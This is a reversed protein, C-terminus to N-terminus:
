KAEYNNETIMRDDTMMQNTDLSQQTDVANTKLYTTTFCLSRHKAADNMNTRCEENIRHETASSDDVIHGEKDNALTSLENSHIMRCSGDYRSALEVYEDRDGLRRPILVDLRDEIQQEYSKETVSTEGEGNKVLTDESGTVIHETPHQGTDATLPKRPFNSMLGCSHFQDSPSEEVCGLENTAEKIGTFKIKTCEDHITLTISREAFNIVANHDVLFDLGLIADTLLQPSLLVIQQVSFDGIHVDLMAQKKVRNSKKNFASLLNVHQTPLEFCKLGEHRLRNYLHENMISLECGTDVLAFIEQEVIKILLRPCEHRRNEAIYLTYSIEDTAANDDSNEKTDVTTLEFFKEFEFTEVLELINRFNRDVNEVSRSDSQNPKPISHNTIYTSKTQWAIM